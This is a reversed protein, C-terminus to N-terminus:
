KKLIRDLFWKGTNSPHDYGESDRLIVVTKYKNSRVMEGAHGYADSLDGEVSEVEKRTYKLTGRAKFKM